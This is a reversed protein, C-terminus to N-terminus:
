VAAPGTEGTRVRVVGEVPSVFIKGDGVEGTRATDAILAVLGDVEGDDVVLEFKVKPIMNLLVETGRYFEKWGHQNGCGQVQSVTMGSVRAAFLAEKVPELKEPRVIATIRKM